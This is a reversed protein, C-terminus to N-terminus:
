DPQQKVTREQVRGQTVEVTVRHNDVNVSLKPALQDMGPHCLAPLYKM